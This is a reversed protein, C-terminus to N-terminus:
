DLNGNLDDEMLRAPLGITGSKEHLSAALFSALPISIRESKALSELQSLWIGTLGGYLGFVVDPVGGYIPDPEEFFCNVRIAQCNRCVAYLLWRLEFSSRRNRGWFAFWSFLFACSALFNKVGQCALSFPSCYSDRDSSHNRRFAFWYCCFLSPVVPASFMALLAPTFRLLNRFADTNEKM